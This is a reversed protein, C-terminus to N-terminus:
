KPINNKNKKCNQCHWVLTRYFSKNPVLKRFYLMKYHFSKIIFKWLIGGLCFHKQLRQLRKHFTVFYDERPIQKSCQYMGSGPFSTSLYKKQSNRLMKKLTLFFFFHLWPNIDLSYSHHNVNYISLTKLHWSHRLM